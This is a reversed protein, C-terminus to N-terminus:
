DADQTNSQLHEDTALPNDQTLRRWYAPTRGFLDVWETATGNVYALMATQRATQDAYGANMEMIDSDEFLIVDVLDGTKDYFKVEFTM